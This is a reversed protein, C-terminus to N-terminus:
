LESLKMWENFAVYASTTCQFIFLKLAGCPPKPFDKTESNALSKFEKAEPEASSEM